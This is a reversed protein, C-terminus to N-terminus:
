LVGFASLSAAFGWLLRFPLDSLDLLEELDDPDM